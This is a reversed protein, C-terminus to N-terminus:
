VASGPLPHITDKSRLLSLHAMLAILVTVFVKPIYSLLIITGKKNHGVWLCYEQSIRINLFFHVSM